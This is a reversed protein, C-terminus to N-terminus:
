SYLFLLIVIVILIIILPLDRVKDLKRQNIIMYNADHYAAGTRIMWFSQLKEFTYGARFPNNRYLVYM